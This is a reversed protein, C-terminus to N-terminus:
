RNFRNLEIKVTLFQLKFSKITKKLSIRTKFTLKLM